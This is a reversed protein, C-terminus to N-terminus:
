STRKMINIPQCKTTTSLFNILNHLTSKIVAHELEQNREVNQEVSHSRLGDIISESRFAALRPTTSQCGFENANLSSAKRYRCLGHFRDATIDISLSTLPSQLRNPTRDIATATSLSHLRDLHPHFPAAMWDRAVSFIVKRM